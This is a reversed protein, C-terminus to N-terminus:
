LTIDVWASGNYRKAVTLNVWTTGNFKKATTAFAWASATNTNYLQVPAVITVATAVRGASNGDANTSYVQFVYSSGPTLGSYTYSRSTMAVGSTYAGGDKSYRVNYSTITNGGDSASTGCTVTVSAGSVSTAISSPTTPVTTWLVSGVLSSSTWPSAGPGTEEIQAGGNSYKTFNIQSGTRTVTCTGSNASSYSATGGSMGNVSTAGYNLVTSGGLNTNGSPNGLNIQYITTAGTYYGGQSTGSGFNYTNAM